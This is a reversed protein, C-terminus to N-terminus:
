GDGNPNREDAEPPAAPEDDADVVPPRFALPRFFADVSLVMRPALLGLVMPVPSLWGTFIFAPVLAAAFVLLTTLLKRMQWTVAREPWRATLEVARVDVWRFNVLGVVLGLALALAPPHRWWPAGDPLGSSTLALVAAMAVAGLAAAVLTIRRAYALFDRLGDAIAPSM